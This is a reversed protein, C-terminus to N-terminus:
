LDYEGVGVGEVSAKGFRSSKPFVSGKPGKTLQITELEYRGVGPAHTDVSALSKSKPFSYQVSKKDEIKYTGPGPKFVSDNYEIHESLPMLAANAHKTL